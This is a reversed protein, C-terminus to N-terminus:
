DEKQDSLYIHSSQSIYILPLSIFGICETLQKTVSLREGEM